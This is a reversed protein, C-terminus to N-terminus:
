IKKRKLVSSPFQPLLENHDDKTAPACNKTSHSFLATARSRVRRLLAPTLELRPLQPHVEVLHPNNPSVTDRAATQACELVHEWNLSAEAIDEDDRLRKKRWKINEEGTIEVGEKEKEKVWEKIHESKGRPLFKQNMDFSRFLYDEASRVIGYTEVTPKTQAKGEDVDDDVDDAADSAVIDAYPESFQFLMELLADTIGEFRRGICNELAQMKASSYVASEDNYSDDIGRSQKTGTNMGLNNSNAREDICVPEASSNHPPNASSNSSSGSSSSAALIHSLNDHTSVSSQRALDTDSASDSSSESGSSSESDSDSDSDSSSESDSDSESSDSESTSSNTDSNSDNKDNEMEIRSEMRSVSSTSMSNEATINTLSNDGTAESTLPIDVTTAPQNTEEITESLSPSTRIFNPSVSQIVADSPPQPAPASLMVQDLVGQLVQTGSQKEDRGVGVRRFRQRSERLLYLRDTLLRSLATTAVPRLPESFVTNYALTFNEGWYVIGHKTKPVYHKGVRDGLAGDDLIRHFRELRSLGVVGTADMTTLNQIRKQDIGISSMTPDRLLIANVVHDEVGLQFLWFRILYDRQLSNFSYTTRSEPLDNNLKDNDQLMHVCDEYIEQSSRKDFFRLIEEFDETLMDSKSGITYKKKRYEEHSLVNLKTHFNDNLYSRNGDEKLHVKYSHTSSTREELVDHSSSSM